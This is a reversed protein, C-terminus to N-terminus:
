NGSLNALVSIWTDRTGRVPEVFATRLTTNVFQFFQRRLFINSKEDISYNRESRSYDHRCGAILYAEAV